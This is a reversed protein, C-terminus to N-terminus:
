SMIVETSNAVGELLEYRRGLVLYRQVSFQDRYKRGFKKILHAESGEESTERYLSLILGGKTLAKEGEM